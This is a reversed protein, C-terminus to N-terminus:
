ACRGPSEYMDPTRATTPPLLTRGEFQAGRREKSSSERERTWWTSRKRRSSADVEDSEADSMCSADCVLLGVKSGFCTRGATLEQPMQVCQGECRVYRSWSSYRVQAQDTLMVVCGYVGMSATAPRPRTM